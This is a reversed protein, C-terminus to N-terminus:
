KVVNNFLMGFENRSFTDHCRKARFCQKLDCEYFIFVDDISNRRLQIIFLYSKLFFRNMSKKNKDM